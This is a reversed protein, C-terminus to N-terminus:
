KSDELDAHLRYAAEKAVNRWPEKSEEPLDCWPTPDPALYAIRLRMALIDINM